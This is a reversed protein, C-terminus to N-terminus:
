QAQTLRMGNQNQQAVRTREILQQHARELSDDRAQRNHELLDPDVQVQPEGGWHLVDYQLRFASSAGWVIPKRMPERVIVADQAQDASSPLPTQAPAHVVILSLAAFALALLLTRNNM